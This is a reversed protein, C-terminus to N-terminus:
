ACLVERRYGRLIWILALVETSWAGYLVAVIGAGLVEFKCAYRETLRTQLKSRPIPLSQM